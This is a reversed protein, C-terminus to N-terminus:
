GLDNENNDQNNDDIIDEINNDVNTKTSISLGDSANSTFKSYSAKVIYTVNGSPPSTITYSNSETRGVYSLTGDSNELYINYGLTGFESTNTAIRKEYYSSASTDFYKNYYEQLYTTNIAEPTSIANWTLKLSIGDFYSTGNTPNDLKAYRTSVDTPENGEKFIDSSRMAEPTYESPLQLPITEKEIASTVIGSPKTFHQGKSYIRSGIANMIKKRNSTGISSTLYYESTTSDYGLWLAICYEPSYTVNWADRTASTPIGLKEATASDINTTGGKSALDTDTVKLGSVNAETASMLMDTIMYATEESMVKVKEYKYDYTKGTDVVTASTYSYPKIYYGGRGFAAYAASLEIPSVGDFGGISASEYLESGYNIGLSHVFNPIINKDVANVAKFARLAPINRSNVLATRMTILGMYQRNSNRIPTGNSYTTEEDLFLTSPSAEPFTELYPGYDFIIKATSGPQRREKARNTGKAAYNRGGSLAVISGDTTSTIAIGEQMKENPFTYIEENELKTLVSQVSSDITTVIKMPVSRADLGTNEKVENLVYDIVAQNTAESKVNSKDLILSEIPIALVAEKEEETIYGHNVMLTLVTKQRKRTEEPYRYPNKTVPNQFMGAIISAEALSIDSVSKGFYYQCAQEVGAIGNYNINGDSAMWFSNVYFELIEEKTYNSEIKFVSMYIDTFKRIIGKIGSDESNTYTLKVLQMTLTSAGGANSKGLVQGFIAKAFRAVDLGKHQFFRSDETAVLADILVQPLDDYTVLVRNESGLRALETEGDNYYLVTAEKSYLKDKDFDPSSIIIYLAFVLIFSVFAILGILIISIITNKITKKRKEKKVKTSKKHSLLKSNLKIKKM